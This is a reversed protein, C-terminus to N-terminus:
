ANALLEEYIAMHQAVIKESAFTEEALMRGAQGMKKRLDPDEILKQIAAALGGADKPAILEGTVGPIIADRCGPMDTTIIARGCAAAEILGKPLGEGYFSPLCVIHSLAYQQSIDKRFGLIKVVGETRWGELEKETISTPNGYDVSGILIFEVPVERNKLIRAAEIFECVGKERLLRSAMVVRIISGVPESTFRYEKLDVGSGSIKISRDKELVCADMLNNKDSDNQFIIKFNSCKLALRYIKIIIWRRIRGIFNEAVFTSGLGSIAFLVAKVRLIRAAIGGYLVPKITVLHILDPRIRFFLFILKFFIYIEYFINQGSRSFSIVHHDFGHALIESVKEGISTAIHVEHGIVQAEKAIELRHSLFFDPSNVVILIKAM